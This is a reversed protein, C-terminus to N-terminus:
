SRIPGPRPQSTPSIRKGTGTLRPHRPSLSTPASRPRLRGVNVYATPAADARSIGCLPGLEAPMEQSTMRAASRHHRAVDFSVPTGRDGLTRKAPYEIPVVLEPDTIGHLRALVDRVRARVQEHLPLIM